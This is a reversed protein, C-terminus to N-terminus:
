EKATKAVLKRSEKFREIEKEEEKDTENFFANDESVAKSRCLRPVHEDLTVEKKDKELIENLTSPVQDLNREENVAPKSANETAKNEEEDQKKKRVHAPLIMPPPMLLTDLAKKDAMNLITTFISALIKSTKSPTAAVTRTITSASDSRVSYEDEGFATAYRSLSVRLDLRRKPPTKATINKNAASRENDNPPSISGKISGDIKDNVGKVTKKKVSKTNPIQNKTNTKSLSHTNEALVKRKQGSSEKLLEQRTSIASVEKQTIEAQTKKNSVSEGLQSKKDQM